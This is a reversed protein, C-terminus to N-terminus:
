GLIFFKEAITNFIKTRGQFNKTRRALGHRVANEETNETSSAAHSYKKRVAKAVAHKLIQKM